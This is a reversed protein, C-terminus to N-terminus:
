QNIMTWERSSDDTAENHLMCVFRIAVLDSHMQARALHVIDCFESNSFYTHTPRHFSAICIDLAKSNLRASRQRHRRASRRRQSASVHRSCACRRPSPCIPATSRYHFTTTQIYKQRFFERKAQETTAAYKASTEHAPRQRVSRTHWPDACNCYFSAVNGYDRVQVRPEEELDGRGYIYRM